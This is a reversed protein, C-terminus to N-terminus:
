QAIGGAVAASQNHGIRQEAHVAVKGRQRFNGFKGFLMGRHQHDVFGVGGADEACCPRPTASCRPTSFPMWMRMPVSLLARPQAPPKTAPRRLKISQSM